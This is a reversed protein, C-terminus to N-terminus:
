QEHSLHYAPERRGPRPTPQHWPYPPVSSIMEMGYDAAPVIRVESEAHIGPCAVKIHASAADAQELVGVHFGHDDREKSMVQEVATGVDKTPRVSLYAFAGAKALHCAM